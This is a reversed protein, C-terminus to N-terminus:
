NKRIIPLDYINLPSGIIEMFENLHDAYVGRPTVANKNAVFAAYGVAEGMMGCTRM